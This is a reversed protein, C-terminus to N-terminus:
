TEQRAAAISSLTIREPPTSDERRENEREGPILRLFKPWHPSEAPLAAASSHWPVAVPLRWPCWATLLVILVATFRAGSGEIRLLRIAGGVIAFGAAIVLSGRLLWLLIDLSNM